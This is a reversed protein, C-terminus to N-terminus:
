FVRDAREAGHLLRRSVQLIEVRTVGGTLLLAMGYIAFGLVIKPILWTSSAAPLAVLVGFALLTSLGASGLVRLGIVNGILRQVAALAVGLGILTTILNSTAAGSMGAKPILWLGCLWQVPLCVLMLLM